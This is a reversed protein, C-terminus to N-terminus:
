LLGPQGLQLSRQRRTLGGHQEGAPAFQCASRGCLPPAQAQLQRCQHGPQRRGQGGLQTVQDALAADGGVGQEGIAQTQRPHLELSLQQRAQRHHEGGVM